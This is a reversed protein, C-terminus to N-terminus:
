RDGYDKGVYVKEVAGPDGSLVARRDPPPIAHRVAPLHRLYVVVARLDEATWNSFVAWPMVGHPVVHGDPFVGSELVRRVEEDTRHALGTEGDPTLNSAVFTGQLSVFKTAGGALYRQYDPGQSANTAHCSICGATMVLYRGHEAMAREAPDTIGTAPPPADGVPKSFTEPPATLLPPTFYLLALFGGAGLVCVGAAIWTLLRRM